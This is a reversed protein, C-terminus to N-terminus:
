EAVSEWPWPAPDDPAAAVSLARRAAAQVQPPEDYVRVESVAPATGCRCRLGTTTLRDFPLVLRRLRNSTLQAVPQWSDDRWAKEM